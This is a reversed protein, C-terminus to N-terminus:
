LPALGSAFSDLAFLICLNVVIVRSEKSITPLISRLYNKKPVADEAGDGLLPASESNQIPLTPKKEAEIVKGLSLALFLKIIGFVAYGYFLTRYSNIIDWGKRETM